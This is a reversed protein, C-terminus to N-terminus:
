IADGPIELAGAGFIVRLDALNYKNKYPLDSQEIAQELQAQSCLLIERHVPRVDRSCGWFRGVKQFCRPVRKQYM